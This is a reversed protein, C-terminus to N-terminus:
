RRLVAHAVLCTFGRSWSLVTIPGDVRAGVPILYNQDGSASKFPRLLAGDAPARAGARPM